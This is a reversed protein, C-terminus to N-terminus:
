PKGDAPIVPVLFRYWFRYWFGTGLFNNHGLKKFTIRADNLQGM